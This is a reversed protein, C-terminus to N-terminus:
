KAPNEDRIRRKAVFFCHMKCAIKKGCETTNYRIVWLGVYPKVVGLLSCSNSFMCGTAMGGFKCNYCSPRIPKM